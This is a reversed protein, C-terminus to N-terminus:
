SSTLRKFLEIPIAVVTKDSFYAMVVGMDPRPGFCWEYVKGKDDWTARFPLNSVQPLACKEEYLFVKAGDAEAVFRAEALVISPFCTIFAFVWVWRPLSM